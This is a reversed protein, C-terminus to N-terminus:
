NIYLKKRVVQYMGEDDENENLTEKAINLRVYLKGTGCLHKVHDFGWTHGKKTVPRSIKNRERKVFDFDKNRIYPYKTQFLSCLETRIAEENEDQSLDFEGKLLIMSDTLTYEEEDDLDAEDLLYVTKPIVKKKAENEPKSKKRFGFRLSHGPSPRKSARNNSSNNNSSISGSNIAIDRSASLASQQILSRTRQILSQQPSASVALEERICARIEARLASNEAM